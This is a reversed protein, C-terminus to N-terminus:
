SVMAVVVVVSPSADRAARERREVAGGDVIGVKENM